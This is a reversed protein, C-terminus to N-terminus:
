LLMDAVGKYFDKPQYCDRYKNWFLDIRNITTHTNPSKKHLFECLVCQAAMKTQVYLKKWEFYGNYLRDDSDVLKLYEALKGPSTFNRVNIFSGPPLVDSYRAGGLVVPIVNLNYMRAVKETLYERCLSNEFSLYFKYKRKLQIDCFNPNGQRNNRLCSLKGCNGYVDVQIHKQLQYVYRERQSQTHCNSVFWAILRSKGAAFNVQPRPLQSQEIVSRPLKDFVITPLYIDSAKKYTMTANFLKNFPSYTIFAHVPSERMYMIWTQQPTRSRPMRGVNNIDRMHVLVADAASLHSKNSTATCHSYECHNFPQGGIGYWNPNSYFRTWYLVLLPEAASPKTLNHHVSSSINISVNSSTNFRVTYLRYYFCLFFISLLVIFVFTNQYKQPNTM